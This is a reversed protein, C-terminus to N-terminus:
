AGDFNLIRLAIPTLIGVYAFFIAWRFDNFLYQGLEFFILFLMAPVAFILALYAWNPDGYFLKLVSAMILSPFANLVTPTQETFHPDSPPWHGDYVERARSM